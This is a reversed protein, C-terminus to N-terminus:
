DAVNEKKSSDMWSGVIKLLELPNIPKPLYDDMGHQLCQARDQESVHATVAIIPTHNQLDQELRRIEKAADLGNMIPMSVDMLILDPNLRIYASIAEAGNEALQVAYQGMKLIEIIAIQNIKNDEVVLIM